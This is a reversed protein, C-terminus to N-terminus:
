ARNRNKKIVESVANLARKRIKYISRENYNMLVSINEWTEFNLYRYILLTKYTNDEVEMIANEIEQMILILRRKHTEIQQVYYLYETLKNETGNGHSEQVKEKIPKAIGTSAEWLRSKSKELNNIIDRIKYGRNLWKETECM